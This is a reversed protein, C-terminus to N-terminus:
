ATIMEVEETIYNVGDEIVCLGNNISDYDDESILSKLANRSAIVTAWTSLLTAVLEKGVPTLTPHSMIDDRAAALATIAANASTFFSSITVLSEESVSDLPTVNTLVEYYDLQSAVYHTDEVGNNDVTLVVSTSHEEEIVEVNTAVGIHVFSAPARWNDTYERHSYTKGVEFDPGSMLRYAYFISESM